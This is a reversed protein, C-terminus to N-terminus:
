CYGFPEQRPAGTSQPRIIGNYQRVAFTQHSQGKDNTFELNRVDDINSRNFSGYRINIDYEYEGARYKGDTNGNFATQMTSGVTQLTLGLAAMKDRDVQVNIEPNGSEVTLKIETAGKIKKLEEMAANAFVMASDLDSGTVVLALPARDATGLMGIPTTKIKAGVLVQQLERKVKAAYVYSDDARLQKPVLKVLVESKYSTSQSAGLGESTQGVTTILDVM